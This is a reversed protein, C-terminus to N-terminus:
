STQQVQDVDVDVVAVSFLLLLALLHLPVRALQHTCKNPNCSLQAEEQLPLGFRIAHFLFVFAARLMDWMCHWLCDSHPVFLRFSFSVNQCDLSLLCPVHSVSTGAAEERPQCQAIHALTPGVQSGVGSNANGHM